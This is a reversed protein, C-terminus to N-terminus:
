GLDLAEALLRAVLDQGRDTLHARDVHLWDDPGAAAALAPNLDFFRVGAKACAVALADAYQRHAEATAITAYNRSFPGSRSTVELEDFLRQEQPHARTQWWNALPQLVFTIEARTPAALLRLAALHRGTLGAAREVLEPLSPPAEATDARRTLQESREKRRVRGTLEQRKRHRSRLADMQEFYEGCLFFAGHEGRQAASLQALALDNLGSLVVIHEIPALVDHFMLFLLLEQMSNHSRGAFNLWPMAPAHQTWLRSAITTADSTAGVGFATSSGALLRIRERPLRDAVAAREHASHSYRFGHSDTNVVPSRYDTRHFHMLYPTWRTEARDDFDDYHAMQPTLVSRATKV